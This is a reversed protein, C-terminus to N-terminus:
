FITEQDSSSLLPFIDEAKM